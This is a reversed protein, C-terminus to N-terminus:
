GERTVERRSRAHRCVVRRSFHANQARERPDVAVPIGSRRVNYFYAM